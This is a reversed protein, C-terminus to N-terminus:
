VGTKRSLFRKKAEEIKQSPSETPEEPEEQPSRKLPLVGTLRNLDVQGLKAMPTEIWESKIKSVVKMSGQALTSGSLHTFVIWTPFRQLTYMASHTDLHLMRGDEVSLYRGEGGYAVARGANKFFGQCLAVRLGKRWDKWSGSEPLEVQKLRSLMQSLQERISDAQNLARPNVYNEWCWNDRDPAERWNEYVNVYTVHDGTDDLFKNQKEKAEQLKLVESKPVTQFVNETSLMSVLTLMPSTVKFVRSALLCRGYSPEIPLRALERGLQTIRADQDICGLLFLEKLAMVLGEYEPKQIFDFELVNQIGLAKLVLVLSTLNVRKIEPTAIEPMQRTYFDNTYLRFCKGSQTRGARGTRQSAQQKSIPVLMLAELGAKPNFAKQKVYGCDIVFGVGPLTLSTEAINTSFVVKRSNQPASSFVKKQDETAMAGYLSLILMSPVSKGENKLKQLTEFCVSCAKECEEAGTLFVLIDGPGEHLHIRVAANVAYQVRKDPKCASHLVEVEYCKGSVTVAPCQGLYNRFLEVDLTASTVIVKLDSRSEVATKLIGLLVDTNISREHVEDLVVVSYKSLTSDKIAERLLVGDTLFKIKTRSSSCDQFRITYGVERGLKCRLEYAVRRAMAMAAVRRPQTVAICKPLKLENLLFQPIQTTKGSGPEGSVLVFKNQRVLDLIQEKHEFIPLSARM